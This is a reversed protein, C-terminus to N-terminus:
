YHLDKTKLRGRFVWFSWAQYAIIIPTMTAAIISMIKLTYASSSANYITLNWSPDLTSIMVNPFITAFIMVGVFLITLSTGLFGRGAKGQMASLVAVILSAAAILTALIPLIGNSLLNTVFAAYIVFLVVVILTAVGLKKSVVAIKQNFVEDASKLTLYLSGHFSFLLLTVVGGLLAFPTLLSFFTGAYEMNADIPVGKMINAVAVGFLIAALSSSIFFALDWNKRWKTSEIKSRFELSVGRVILAVLVLFFALYFGSFLTAYWNPFAAFIAAGATILWVENGDWCHGISNLITRRESDTKAVFPMIAGVGFDFGDLVLFGALFFAVVCFWFINLDM